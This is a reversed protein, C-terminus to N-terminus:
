NLLSIEIRFQAIGSLLARPPPLASNGLASELQWDFLYTWLQVNPLSENLSRAM